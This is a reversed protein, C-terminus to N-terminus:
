LVIWFFRRWLFIIKKSGRERRDGTKVIKEYRRGGEESLCVIFYMKPTTEPSSKSPEWSPASAPTEISVRSLLPQKPSSVVEVDLSSGRTSDEINLPIQKLTLKSKNFFAFISKKNRKQLGKRKWEAITNERWKIQGLRSWGQQITINKVFEQYKNHTLKPNKM